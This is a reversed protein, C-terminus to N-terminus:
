RDGIKEWLPKDALQVEKSATKGSSYRVEVRYKGPALAFRAEPTAQLNRGDGGSVWRTGCLKGTGDLVKVTAGIPSEPGAFRVTLPAQKGKIKSFLVACPNPEDGLLVMDLLGDNNFDALITGTAKFKQELGLEATSYRFTGDGKALYVRVLGTACTVVLDLHGDNNIDAWVASVSEARLQALDGAQMTVDKFKGKGDSEYLRVAPPPYLGLPAPRVSTKWLPGEDMMKLLLRNQGKKVEVEVKDADPVFSRKEKHEYVQKGNLWVTLGNLSGVHLVIKEAAPWEFTTYAYASNPSPSARRIELVGNSEAKLTQWNWSDKGIKIEPRATPNFDPGAKLEADEEPTFTGVMHWDILAGQRDNTTVFLGLRGNNRYDAGAISPRPLTPFSLGTDKEEVFKGAKNIAVLPRALNLIFGVKGDQNLDLATLYNAPEQGLGNEGLGWKSSVDEFWVGKDDAKGKNLWVTLGQVGVTSLLDPLGDGNVDVWAFAEGPNSVRKPTEPLRASDDRFKEGTNTYLKGMSTFLSPRGSRDYDAFGASLCGPADSLGWKETM